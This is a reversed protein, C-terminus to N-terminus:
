QHRDRMRHQRPGRAPVAPRAIREAPGSGYMTFTHDLGTLRLLTATQAPPATLGMPIGMVRARRQVGVLVALGSTDCFSVGSLDCVLMSPDSRLAHLLRERMANSTFIDIEGRLHVVTASTPVPRSAAHHPTRGLLNKPTM